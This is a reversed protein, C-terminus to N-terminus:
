SESPNDGPEGSRINLLSAGDFDLTEYTDLERFHNLIRVILLLQQRVTELKKRTDEEETTSLVLDVYGIIITFPRSFEHVVTSATTKAGELLHTDIQGWGARRDRGSRRDAANRRDPRSRRDFPMQSHNSTVKKV